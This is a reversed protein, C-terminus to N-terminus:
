FFFCPLFTMVFGVLFGVLTQLPTHAKLELRSLAVLASLSFILVFFWLPNYAMRYCVGFIAGVIGGMGALHASIKWKLNVLVIIVITLTSGISMSVIFIPFQMTRWMFMSWFVYAIFSFLYPMTREERKSIFVDNIDGRRMMFFIPVAPLVATFVFTGAIAIWRWFVPLNSFVEM